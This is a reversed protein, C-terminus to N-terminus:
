FGESEEHGVAARRGNGQSRSKSAADIAYNLANRLKEASEVDTLVNVSFPPFSLDIGVLADAHGTVRCKMSRRDGVNKITIEEQKGM